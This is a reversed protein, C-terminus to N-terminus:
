DSTLADLAARIRVGAEDAVPRLDEREPITVMIQPTWPRSSAATM